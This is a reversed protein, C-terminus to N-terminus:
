QMMWDKSRAQDVFGKNEYRDKFPEVANKKKEPVPRYFNTCSLNLADAEDPSGGAEKMTKKKEEVQLRNKNDFAYKASLLQRRLKKKEEPNLRSWEILGDEAMRFTQFWLESRRNHYNSERIATSAGNILIFNYGERLEFVAEGYGGGADIKVAIKKGETGSKKGWEDALQRLKNATWAYEVGQRSERYVISKGWRVYVVTCNDGMRAVDCGIEPPTDKPLEQQKTECATIVADNWISYVSGTPWRGLVRAEFEPGPRYWVGSQPPWEVDYIPKIDDKSEIKTTWDKIAQNIWALRVGAEVLPPQGALELAVNPHELANLTIVHWNSETNTEETYVFSSSDLPNYLVLWRHEPSTMMAKAATWFEEPIGIAEDMVILLDKERRGQFSAADKATYGQAYHNPALEMRPAKPSLGPRGRRQTRVEKWLIDIVSSETPATTLTISPIRCDFWFNILSGATHSKSYGNCSRVMVRPYKVIAEAIEIQKPLWKIKLVDKAYQYPKERYKSFDRNFAVRGQLKAALASFEEPQMQARWQAVLAQYAAKARDDLPPTPKKAM